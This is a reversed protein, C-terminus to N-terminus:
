CICARAARWLEIPPVRVNHRALGVNKTVYTCIGVPAPHLRLRRHQVGDHAAPVALEVHVQDPVLRQARGARHHHLVVGVEGHVQPQQAHRGADAAGVVLGGGDVEGAVSPHVGDVLV